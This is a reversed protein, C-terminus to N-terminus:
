PSKRGFLARAVAALGVLTIATVVANGLWGIPADGHHIATTAFGWATWGLWASTIGLWATGVLLHTRCLQIDARSGTAGTVCRLYRRPHRLWVAPDFDCDYLDRLFWYGDSKLWPNLTFMMGGFFAALVIDGAEAAIAGTRILGQLLLLVLVDNAIGALDAHVRDRRPAGTLCALDVFFVVRTVYIGIGARTVRRGARMCAAVHGAEHWLTSVVAAAVFGLVGSWALSSLTHAMRAPQFTRVAGALTLLGIGCLLVSCYVYRQPCLNAASELLRLLASSYRRVHISLPDRPRASSGSTGARCVFGHDILAAIVAPDLSLESPIPESTPHPTGPTIRRAADRYMQLLVEGIDPRVRYCRGSFYVFPPTVLEVEPALTMPGTAAAARDHNDDIM